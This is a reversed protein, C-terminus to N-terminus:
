SWAMGGVPLRRRLEDPLSASPTLVFSGVLASYEMDPIDGFLVPGSARDPPRDVGSRLALEALPDDYDIKGHLRLDGHLGSAGRCKSRRIWIWVHSGRGDRPPDRVGEDYVGWRGGIECPADPGATDVFDGSERFDLIFYCQEDDVTASLLWQRGALAGKGVRAPPAPRTARKTAAKELASDVASENAARSTLALRFRGVFDPDAAGELVVGEVSGGRAGVAGQLNYRGLSLHIKCHTANNRIREIRWRGDQAGGRGAGSSDDYIDRLATARGDAGLFVRNPESTDEVFEYTGAHMVRTLAADLVVDADDDGGDLHQQTAALRTTAGHTKPPAQLAAAAVALALVRM